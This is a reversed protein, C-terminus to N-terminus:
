RGLLKLTHAFLEPGGPDGHGPVVVAATGYRAAASSVSDPWAPVDADAVNGLGTAALARMMCGGFVVRSEPLWVVVNDREHGPGPYFVEASGVTVTSGPQRLGDLVDPLVTLGQKEALERTLPHAVMRVGRRALVPAGGLRDDHFHTAVAHEVPLRLTADIWGLLQETAPEGWATDILLLGDGERVVLGNSPFRTGDALLRWSTHLFVGPRIERVQLDASVEWSGTNVPAARTIPPGPAAAVAPAAPAPARRPAPAACAAMALTILVALLRRM